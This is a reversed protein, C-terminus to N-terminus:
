KSAIVESLIQKYRDSETIKIKKVSEVEEYSLHILSCVPCALDVDDHAARDKLEDVTM